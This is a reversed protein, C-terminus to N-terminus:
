SASYRSAHHRPRLKKADSREVVSGEGMCRSNVSLSTMLYLTKSPLRFVTISLFRFVFKAM